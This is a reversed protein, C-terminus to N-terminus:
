ECHTSRLPEYESTAELSRLLGAVDSGEREQYETLCIRGEPLRRPWWCHKGTLGTLIPVVMTRVVFTDVLVATTVIFSWQHLVPNSSLLLSGFALAMIVGAANIVGGTSHLGSAISTRHEYGDLRYELIRSVLFVDYDLTLGVVTSFAMVPVLWCVENGISNLSSLNMWNFIGDQYVYVALGFSFSLTLAISVISRLPAFLSRFFLGMLVFVVVVTATAVFPFADSVSHVADNAIGATGEIYVNVGSLADQDELNQILRRASLLWSIGEDSFPNSGLTATLFTADADRSTAMDDIEDIVHLM